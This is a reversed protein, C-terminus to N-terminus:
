RCIGPTLYVDGETRESRKPSGSDVHGFKFIQGDPLFPYGDEEKGRLALVPGSFLCESRGLPYNRRRQWITWRLLDTRRHLNEEQAGAGHEVGGGPTSACAMNLVAVKGPYKQDLDSAIDLMDASLVHINLQTREAVIMPDQM